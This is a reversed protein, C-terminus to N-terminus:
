SVQAFPCVYVPVKYWYSSWFFPFNTRFSTWFADDYGMPNNKQYVETKNKLEGLSFNVYDRQYIDMVLHKM